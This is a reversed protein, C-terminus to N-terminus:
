RALASAALRGSKGTASAATAQDTLSATQVGTTPNPTPVVVGPVGTAEVATATTATVSSSGAVTRPMRRREIRAMHKKVKACYEAAARSMVTTRHGGKYKMATQCIDHGGREWAGALYKMGYRLNTEPDYLGESPGTFGLYRATAPKIQSLGLASGGKAKPNYHSEVRVVAFALAPPIDNEVAAKEIMRDISASGTITDATMFTDGLKQTVSAVAQKTGDVAAATAYGATESVASVAQSTTDIAAVTAAEATKGVAAITAVVAGPASDSGAAADKASAVETDPDATAKATTETKPQTEAISALLRAAQRYEAVDAQLATLSDPQGAKASKKAARPATKGAEATAALAAQDPKKAPVTLRTGDALSMVPAPAYGYTATVDEVTTATNTATQSSVCATVTIPLLAVFLGKM